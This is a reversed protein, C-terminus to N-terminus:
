PNSSPDQLEGTKRERSSGKILKIMGDQGAVQWIPEALVAGFQALELTTFWFISGGGVEETAHRLNTLRERSTTIVLIRLSTTGFRRSYQGSAIYAQYAQVRHAWRGSTETARDIELLFHARRDILGLALYADPIIAVQHSTGSNATMYVYERAARLEDDRLWREIRYGADQVALAFAICVDNVRLTHELFPSRVTRSISQHHLREQSVTLHQTLINAGKKTSLYIAQGMGQGYEVSRWRRELFGHQYLRQLRYNTTNQSPFLLRQIQERSLVRYDHVAQLVKIDRATLRMPLPNVVRLHRPTNTRITGMRLQLM